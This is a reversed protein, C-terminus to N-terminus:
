GRSTGRGFLNRSTGRGRGEGSSRREFFHTEGGDLKGAELGEDIRCGDGDRALEHADDARVAAALRVHDVGHAPHEALRRRLLQAALLHLVHDEIAGRLPLGHAPGRDLEDEIVREPPDAAGPRSVGLDAHLADEGALAVRVVGDVRLMHAPAVHLVDEEARPEPRAGVRDDLLAHDRADDRRLGLLQPDEELLRRADGLVALPAALRLRPELVRALVQRPDAVDAGLEARLELVERLLRLDGGLVLLQLRLDREVLVQERERPQALGLLRAVAVRVLHLLRLDRELGLGRLQAFRLARELRQAAPVVLAGIPQLLQLAREVGGVSVHLRELLLDREEGLVAAAHRVLQLRDAALLVLDRAADVRRARLAIAPAGFDFRRARRDGFPFALGRARPPRNGVGLRRHLLRLGRHARGLGLHVRRLLRLADLLRAFRVGELEERLDLRALVPELLFVHREHKGLRFLEGRDLRAARFHGRAGRREIARVGIRFRAQWDELLLAARRGRAQLLCQALEGGEFGRQLCEFGLLRAEVGVLLQLVPDRLVAQLAGLPQPLRDMDLRAPVVGDLRREAHPQVGDLEGVFRLQGREQPVGRGPAEREEDVTAGPFDRGCGRTERRERGHDRCRARAHAGVKAVREGIREDKGLGLVSAVERADQRLAADEDRARAMEEAALADDEVARLRLEVAHQLALALDLLQARANGRAGRRAAVQLRLHPAELLRESFRALFRPPHALSERLRALLSM